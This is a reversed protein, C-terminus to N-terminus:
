FPIDEDLEADFKPGSAYDVKSKDRHIPDGFDFDGVNVEDLQIKELVKGSSSVQSNLVNDSSVTIARIDKADVETVWKRKGDNDDFSRTVIRGDILIVAGRVLGERKEAVQRWAVIPIFDQAAAIGDVSPRDTSITFRIMPDGSNTVRSDLDNVITGVLTIRNISSV